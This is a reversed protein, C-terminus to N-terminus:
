SMVAPYTQKRPYLPRLDSHPHIDALLWYRVDAIFFLLAAFLCQAMGSAFGFDFRSQPLQRIFRRAFGRAIDDHDATADNRGPVIIEQELRPYGGDIPGTGM